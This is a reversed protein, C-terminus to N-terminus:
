WLKKFEEDYNMWLCETRDSAMAAGGYYNERKKHNVGLLTPSAVTKHTVCRWRKYLRDYLGHYGSVAIRADCKELVAAMVIHDKTVMEHNYERRSTRSSHAYPPDCYILCGKGDYHKIVRLAPRNEIQVCLLRECAAQFRLCRASNIIPAASGNKLRKRWDAARANPHSFVAMMMM